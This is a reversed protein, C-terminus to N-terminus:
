SEGGGLRGTLYLVVWVVPLLLLLSVGVRVANRVIENDLIRGFETNYVALSYLTGFAAIGVAVVARESLAGVRAGRAIWVLFMACLWAVITLAWILWPLSDTM